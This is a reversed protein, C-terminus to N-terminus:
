RIIGANKLLEVRNEYYVTGAYFTNHDGIPCLSGGSYIVETIVKSNGSSLIVDKLRKAIVLFKTNGFSIIDGESVEELNVGNGSVKFIKKSIETM